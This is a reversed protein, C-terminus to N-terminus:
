TCKQYDEKLMYSNLYNVNPDDYMPKLQGANKAIILAEERDKFSGDSVFYGERCCEPKCRLYLDYAFAAYDYADNHSNGMFLTIDGTKPDTYEIAAQNIFLM